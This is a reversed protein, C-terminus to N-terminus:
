RRRQKRAQEPSTRTQGETLLKVIESVDLLTICGKEFVM